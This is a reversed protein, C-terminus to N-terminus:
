FSDSWLLGVWLHQDPWSCLLTAWSLGNLLCWRLFLRLCLGQNLWGWLDLHLGIPFLESTSTVVLHLNETLSLSIRVTKISLLIIVADATNWRQFESWSDVHFSKLFFIMVLSWSSIIPSYKSRRVVHAALVCRCSAVIIASPSTTSTTASANTICM